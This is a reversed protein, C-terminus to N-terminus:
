ELVVPPAWVQLQHHPPGRRSWRWPAGRTLLQSDPQCRSRVANVGNTLQGHSCSRVRVDVPVTVGSHLRQTQNARSICPSQSLQPMIHACFGSVGNCPRFKRARASTHKVTFGLVNACSSRALEVVLVFHKKCALMQGPQSSNDATRKRESSTELSLLGGM